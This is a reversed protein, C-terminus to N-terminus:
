QSPMLGGSSSRQPKGPIKPIWRPVHRKYERYSEGFRKELGPEESFIFYFHNIAFFLLALVGLAGSGFYLAEGAIMTLVGLIMPNRIYQYPGIAVLKRTPDWPMITGRGVKFFLLMCWGALALGAFFLLAGLIEAPSGLSQAPYQTLLWYPLLLVVAFPVILALLARILM